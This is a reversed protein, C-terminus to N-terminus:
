ASAPKRVKITAIAIGSIITWKIIEVIFGAELLIQLQKNISEVSGEINLIEEIGEGVTNEVIQQVSDSDFLGADPEAALAEFIMELSMLSLENGVLALFIDCRERETLDDTITGNQGFAM